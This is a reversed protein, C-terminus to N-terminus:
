GDTVRQIPIPSGLAATARSVVDVVDERVAAFPATATHADHVGFLYLGPSLELEALIARLRRRLRNRVVASGVGRGIAYGVHPLDAHDAPLPAVRLWVHRGRHRRGTRALADFSARSSLSRILGLAERPGQPSAVCRHSPRGQLVHAPPLRPAQGPSTREAPFNEERNTGITSRPRGRVRPRRGATDPLLPLRLDRSM